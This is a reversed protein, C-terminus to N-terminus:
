TGKRLMSIVVAPVEMDRIATNTYLAPRSVNIKLINIKTPVTLNPQAEVEM